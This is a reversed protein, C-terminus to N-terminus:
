LVYFQTYLLFPNYAIYHGGMHYNISSLKLEFSNERWRLLLIRIYVAAMIAYKRLIKQLKTRCLLYTVMKFSMRCREIKTPLLSQMYKSRIITWLHVSIQSNRFGFKSISGISSAIAHYKNWYCILVNIIYNENTWCFKLSKNRM